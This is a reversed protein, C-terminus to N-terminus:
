HTVEVQVFVPITWYRRLDDASKNSSIMDDNRVFRVAVGSVNSPHTTMFWAIAGMDDAAAANWKKAEPYAITISISYDLIETTLGSQPRGTLEPVGIEFMRPTASFATFDQNSNETKFEAFRSRPNIKRNPVIEEIDRALESCLGSLIENLATM